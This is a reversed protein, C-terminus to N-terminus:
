ISININSKAASKSTSKIPVDRQDLPLKLLKFIEEYTAYEISSHSLDLEVLCSSKIIQHIYPVSERTIESNGSVGLRKLTTNGILYSSLIEIGKDTIKTYDLRLYELTTSDLILEGLDKMCEDDLGNSSLNLVSISSKCNSLTKFLLSAGKSHMNNDSLSNLVSFFRTLNNVLCLIVM